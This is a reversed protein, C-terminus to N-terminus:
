SGWDGESIRGNWLRRPSPGAASLKRRSGDRGAAKERAGQWVEYDQSFDLGKAAKWRWIIGLVMIHEPWARLTDTDAAWASQAVGLSSRCWKNSVYEYYVSQSATPAPLIWFSNGRIRYQDDAGASGFAKQDQWDRPNVPGIIRRTSTRNYLTENVIWGFDSPLDASADTQEETATTTFSTETVLAQWQFESATEDGEINSLNLLQKVGEAQSTIVTTTQALNLAAQCRNMLALLTL